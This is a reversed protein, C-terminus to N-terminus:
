VFLPIKRNNERTKISKVEEKRGDKQM